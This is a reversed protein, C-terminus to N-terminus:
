IIKVPKLGTERSMIDWMKQHFILSNRSSLIKFDKWRCPYGIAKLHFYIRINVNLSSDRTKINNYVKQTRDYDNMIRARIESFDPLVWGWYYHGIPNILGYFSSNNTASLGEILLDVSTKIRISNKNLRKVEEGSPFGKSIYYRDLDEYLSPPIEGTFIGETRILANYFTDRDKYTHKGGSNVMSSDKFGSNKSILDVEYGCNCIEPEMDCNPCKSIEDFKRTIDLDIYSSAIELYREILSMRQEITQQDQKYDICPGISIVGRVEESGIPIYAEIIPEAKILYSNWLSENRYSEVEEIRAKIEDEMNKREVVTKSDNIKSKMVEIMKLMEPVQLKMYSLRVTIAEHIRLINLDNKYVAKISDPPDENVIPHLKKSYLCANKNGNIHYNGLDRKCQLMHSLPNKYKKRNGKIVVTKRSM